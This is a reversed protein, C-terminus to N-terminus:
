KEKCIVSLIRMFSVICYSRISLRDFVQVRNTIMERKSGMKTRVLRDSGTQTCRFINLIFLMDQAEQKRFHEVVTSETLVVRAHADLPVNTGISFNGVHLIFFFSFVTVQRVKQRECRNWANRIFRVNPFIMINRLIERNFPLSRTFTFLYECNSTTLTRALESHIFLSTLSPKITKLVGSVNKSLGLM